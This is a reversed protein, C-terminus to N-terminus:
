IHANHHQAWISIIFNLILHTLTVEQLLKEREAELKERKKV